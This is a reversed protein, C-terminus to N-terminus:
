PSIEMFLGAGLFPQTKRKEVCFGLVKCVSVGRFAGNGFVV